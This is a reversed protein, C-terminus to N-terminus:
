KQLVGSDQLWGLPAKENTRQLIELKCYAATTTALDVVLPPEEATPFAVAIPNTGLALEGRKITERLSNPKRNLM